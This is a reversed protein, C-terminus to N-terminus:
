VTVLFLLLVMEHSQPTKEEAEEMEELERM